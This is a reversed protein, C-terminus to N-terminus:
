CLRVNLEPSSCLLPVPVLGRFCYLRVYQIQCGAQFSQNPFSLPLVFLSNGPCAMMYKYEEFSSHGFVLDLWM